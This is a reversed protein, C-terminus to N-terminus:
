AWPRTRMAPKLAGGGILGPTVTAPLPQDIHSDLTVGVTPDEDSAEHMM